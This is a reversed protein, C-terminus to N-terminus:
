KLIKLVGKEAFYLIGAFAAGVFYGVTDGVDGAGSVAEIQEPTLERVEHETTEIPNNM